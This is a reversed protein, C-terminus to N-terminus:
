NKINKNLKKIIKLSDILVNVEKKSLQFNLSELGGNMIEIKVLSDKHSAESINLETKEINNTFKLNM